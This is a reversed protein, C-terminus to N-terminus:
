KMQKKLLSNPRDIMPRSAVLVPLSWSRFLNSSFGLLFDMVFIRGSLIFFEIPRFKPTLGNIFIVMFNIEFRLNLNKMKIM